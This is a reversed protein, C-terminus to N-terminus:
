GFVPYEMPHVVKARARQYDSYARLSFYALLLQVIIMPYDPWRNGGSLLGSVVLWLLSLGAIGLGARFGRPSNLWFMAAMIIYVFALVVLVTDGGLIYRNYGLGWFVTRILVLWLAGALLLIAGKKNAALVM